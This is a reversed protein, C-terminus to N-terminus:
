SIYHMKGTKTKKSPREQLESATEMESTQLLCMAESHQRLRVQSTVVDAATNYLAPMTAIGSGEVKIGEEAKVETKARLSAATSTVSRQELGAIRNEM